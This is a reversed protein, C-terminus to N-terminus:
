KLKKREFAAQLGGALLVALVLASQLVNGLSPDVQVATDLASALRLGGVPVVAFLLTVLPVWGARVNTVLVILVGMFGIGGSVGPVLKGRTFLVQVAGALGALAGCLMLSLLLQRNTRVGLLYASQANRGLARLQLGWRTGRLVFFIILYAAVALFVASLSLRLRANTSLQGSEM